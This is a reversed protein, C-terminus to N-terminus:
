SLASAAYLPPPSDFTGAVIDIQGLPTILRDVGSISQNGARELLAPVIM